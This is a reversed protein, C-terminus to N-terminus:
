SKMKSIAILDNINIHDRIITAMEESCAKLKMIVELGKEFYDQTYIETLNKKNFDEVMMLIKIRAKKSNLQNHVMTRLNPKLLDVVTYFEEDQVLETLKFITNSQSYGLSKIDSISKHSDDAEKAVDILVFIKEAKEILELLLFQFAVVKRQFVKTQSVGKQRLALKIADKLLKLATVLNGLEEIM